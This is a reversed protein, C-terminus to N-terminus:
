DSNIVGKNKIKRYIIKNKKRSLYRIEARSNFLSDQKLFKYFDYSFGPKCCFDLVLLTGEETWESPHPLFSDNQHFFDTTEKSFFCWTIYGIPHGISDFFFKIQNQKIAQFTWNRLSLICFNEYYNNEIICSVAFGLQEFLSGTSNLNKM